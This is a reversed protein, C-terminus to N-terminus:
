ILLNNLDIYYIKNKLTNDSIVQIYLKNDELSIIKYIENDKLELAKTPNITYTKKNQLDFIYFYGNEGKTNASSDAVVYNGYLNIEQINGYRDNGVVTNEVKNNELNFIRLGYRTTYLSKEMLYKDNFKMISPYFYNENRTILKEEKGNAVNYAYLTDGKTFYIFNEYGINKYHIFDSYEIFKKDSLDVTKVGKTTLNEIYLKNNINEGQFDEYSSEDNLENLIYYLNNKDIWMYRIRRSYDHSNEFEKIIKYDLTNLDFKILKNDINLVMLNDKFNFVRNYSDLNQNYYSKFDEPIKADKLFSLEKKNINDIGIEAIEDFVYGEQSPISPMVYFKGDKVYDIAYGTIDPIKVEKINDKSLEIEKRNWSNYGEIKEPKFPLGKYKRDMGIYYAAVLILLAVGLIGVIILFVKLAKKM